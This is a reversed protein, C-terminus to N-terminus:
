LYSKSYRQRFSERAADVGYGQSCKDREYALQGIVKSIKDHKHLLEHCELCVPVTLGDQDALNRKGRGFVLHHTHQKPKYCFICLENYETIM